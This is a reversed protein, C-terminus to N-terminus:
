LYDKMISLSGCIIIVDRPGAMSRARDLAERANQATETMIGEEWILAALTDAPLGREGPPTVTVAFSMTPALIEVMKPYEKDKLVGMIYIIRRNTFHYNVTEFLSRWGAENHAGDCFVAPSNMICTMRGPWTTESLGRKIVEKTVGPIQRLVEIATIANIVQHRGMLGISYTEGKYSFETGEITRDLILAEEDDALIFTAEKRRCEEKLISMVEPLQPSTVLVGHPKIIGAKEEAISEITNGLYQMHDMSIQAMVAVESTEIVNTADQWGGMGCEVLCYDVNMDAFFKYAIATEIEFATPSAFGEEMMMDVCMAAQMVYYTYEKETMERGNVTFRELYTRVSPSVYRGVSINARIMATECFAFVSGKGNTGAIHLVKLNQQPNGLRSLLEKVENLGPKIGLKGKEEIYSLAEVYTMATQVM